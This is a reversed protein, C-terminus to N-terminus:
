RWECSVQDCNTPVDVMNWLLSERVPYVRKHDISVFYREDDTLYVLDWALDNSNEKIWIPMTKASKPIYRDLKQIAM